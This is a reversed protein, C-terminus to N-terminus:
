KILNLISELNHILLGKGTKFPFGEGFEDIMKEKSYDYVLCMSDGFLEITEKDVETLCPNPYKYEHYAAEIKKGNIHHLFSEVAIDTKAFNSKVTNSCFNEVSSVSNRVSILLEQFVLRFERKSRVKEQTIIISKASGWSIISALIAGVSASIVAIWFDPM